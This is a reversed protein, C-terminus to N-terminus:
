LQCVSLYVCVFQGSLYISLYVSLGGKSSDKDRALVLRGAMNSRSRLFRRHYIKMGGLQALM